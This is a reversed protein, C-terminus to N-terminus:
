DAVTFRPLLRRRLGDPLMAHLRTLLTLVRPFAIVARNRALGALIIGAAREAPMEQPKNASERASMPTTVWGPCIV